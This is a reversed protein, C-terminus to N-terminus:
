AREVKSAKKLVDSEGVSHKLMEVVSGNPWTRFEAALFPMATCTVGTIGCTGGNM